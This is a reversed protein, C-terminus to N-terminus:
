PSNHRLGGAPARPSAGDRSATRRRSRGLRARRAERARLPARPTGASRGRPNPAFGRRILVAAQTRAVLDTTERRPCSVGRRASRSRAQRDHHALQGVRPRRADGEAALRACSPRPRQVRCGFGAGTHQAPHRTQGRRVEVAPHASGTQGTGPEQDQDATAARNGCSSSRSTEAHRIPSGSSLSGLRDRTNPTDGCSRSRGTM